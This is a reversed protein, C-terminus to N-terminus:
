PGFAPSVRGPLSVHLLEYLSPRGQEQQWGQTGTAGLRGRRGPERHGRRGNGVRLRLLGLVEQRLLRRPSLGHNGCAFLNLIAVLDDDEAPDAAPEMGDY